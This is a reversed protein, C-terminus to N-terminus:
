TQLWGRAHRLALAADPNRVRRSAEISAMGIRCDLTYPDLAGHVRKKKRIDSAIYDARAGGHHM